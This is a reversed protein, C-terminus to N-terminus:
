VRRQSMKYEKGVNKRVKGKKLGISDLEQNNQFVIMNEEEIRQVKKRNEKVQKRRENEGRQEGNM